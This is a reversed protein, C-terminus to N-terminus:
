DMFKNSKYSFIKRNTQKITQNLQHLIFNKVEKEGDERKDEKAM